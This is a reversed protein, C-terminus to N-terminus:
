FFRPVNEGVNKRRNARRRRPRSCTADREGPEPLAHGPISSTGRRTDFLLMAYRYRLTEIVNRTERHNPVTHPAHIRTHHTRALTHGRFIYRNRESM